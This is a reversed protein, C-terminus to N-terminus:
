MTGTQQATLIHTMQKMHNTDHWVTLLLQEELSMSGRKPHTGRREWDAENREILYALFARRQEAWRTYIDHLNQANYNAEAVLADQDPAYLVPNEEQVTVLARQLFIQEYDLLHGLVEQVSWGTGGDRYTIAATQDLTQVLYGVVNLGNELQEFQRQRLLASLM